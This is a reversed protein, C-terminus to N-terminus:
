LRLQHKSKEGRSTNRRRRRTAVSNKDPLWNRDSQFEKRQDGTGAKGLNSPPRYAKVTVKYSVEGGSSLYLVRSLKKLLVVALQPSAKPIPM